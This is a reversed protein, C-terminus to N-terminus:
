RRRGGRRTSPRSKKCGVYRRKSVTKSGRSTTAVIRITFKGQPLRKLALRTVRRGRVTKVKKGNVYAVVSVVRGRGRRPQHIRFSFKRRDVGAQSKPTAGLPKGGPGEKYSLWPETPVRDPGPKSYDCVGTPYIQQLQQFQADTLNLPAYHSRRLPQLDCKVTDDALPM